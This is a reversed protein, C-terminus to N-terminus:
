ISLRRVVDKFTLGDRKVLLDIVDGGENCVFCFYKNDKVSMSPHHDDHFPCIAKGRVVEVFDAIHRQKAREIMENTLDGSRSSELWKKEKVLKEKGGYECILMRLWYQSNLRHARNELREIKKIREGLYELRCRRVWDPCEDKIEVIFDRAEQRGSALCKKETDWGVFPISELTDCLTQLQPNM